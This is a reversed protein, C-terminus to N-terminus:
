DDAGAVETSQCPGVMSRRFRRERCHNAHRAKAAVEVIPVVSAIELREFGFIHGGDVAAIQRAMEDRDGIGAFLPPLRRHGGGRTPGSDGVRESQGSPLGDVQAETASGLCHRRALELIRKRRHGISERHGRM